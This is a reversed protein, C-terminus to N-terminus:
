CSWLEGNLQALSSNLHEFYAALRCHFFLKKTKLKPNEALSTM